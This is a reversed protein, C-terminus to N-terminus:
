QKRLRFIRMPVDPAIKFEFAESNTAYFANTYGPVESFAGTGTASELIYNPVSLTSVLGVEGGGTITMALRPQPPNTTIALGFGGASVATVGDLDPPVDISIGKVTGDDKLALGFNYGAAVAVVNSLGPVTPDETRLLISLALLSGVVVRGDARLLTTFSFPGSGVSCAIINSIGGGGGPMGLVVVTGDDKVLVTGSGAGVGADMSVVNSVGMVTRDSRLLLGGDIAIIGYAGPVDGPTGGNVWRVVTGDARLALDYGLSFTSDLVYVAVINSLSSPAVAENCPFHPQTRFCGWAALTGDAKIALAHTDGAAVAVINTLGPPVAPGHIGVVTGPVKTPWTHPGTFALTAVTSTVYGVYNSVIVTYEGADGSSTSALVFASSTAGPVATGNRRWQYELPNAGTATVSFGVKAGTFVLQGIPQVIIEPTGFLRLRGPASLVYGSSNSVKVTYDGANAFQLNALILQANTEGSLDTGNFQWQYALPGKGKATASFTVTANPQATITTPHQVIVPWHTVVMPIGKGCIATVNSFGAETSTGASWRVVTGDTRLAMGIGSVEVVNSLWPPVATGVVTGDSKLYSNWTIDVHQDLSNTFPFGGVSAVITGNRRLATTADNGAAVAVADTVPPPAFGSGWHVMSGDAKLAVAHFTGAAVAVVGSLGAPVNAGSRPGWGVVTGDSKLALSFRDGASVAVVGSLGAPVVEAGSPFSQWTWGKITGDARLVLAHSVSADMAVVDDWQEPPVPGDLIVLPGAPRDGLLVLNAPASTISGAFNSVIVRYEGANAESANNRVMLRSTGNAVPAGDKYWAYTLPPTGAAVVDFFYMGRKYRSLSRPQTVISPPMAVTLTAGASMVSGAGNSVVARYEGADASQAGSITLANSNAGSIATGNKLWSYTLEEGVATVNFTISGGVVATQSSPGQTILPVGTVQGSAVALNNRYGADIATFGWLRYPITGQGDSNWGWAVASGDSKIAISHLLGAVVKVVNNLGAPVNAQGYDNRGWAVVTGDARLALVHDHASLAIVNTASAPVPTVPFTSNTGWIVVTGNSRAAACFYDGTAVARADNLGAPVTCQGYENHGWAVVTGNARLAVSYGQGGGGGSADIAIVGDLGAPPTSAGHYNDGWGIVTGDSRLALAHQNAAAIAVVGSLGTPPTAQGVTNVGWGVVTGDTRLALNFNGGCAVAAVNNSLGSTVHPGGGLFHGWGRIIPNPTVLILNNLGGAAIQTVGTLGYPVTIQGDRNFGWAVLTGDAKLALSHAGGASIAVVNSLGPPVTTQGYDNRGWAVVTGDSKLALVHDTASVAIVNLADSPVNTNGWGNNGWATVSGDQRVAVSFGNGAAIAAANLGSPVDCQGYVNWGWAVVAGNTTLALNHGFGTDIAVVGSLGSPINTQGQAGNGWAVVTGDSKLALAHRQHGASVAIVGSLGAPPSAQGIDNNGWGIVVGDSRVALSFEGGSSIAIVNNSLGAPVITPGSFAGWGQLVPSQAFASSVAFLGSLLLSKAVASFVSKM